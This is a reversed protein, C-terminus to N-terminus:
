KHKGFEKRYVIAALVALVLITLPPYGLIWSLIVAIIQVGGCLVSGVLLAGIINLIEDGDM